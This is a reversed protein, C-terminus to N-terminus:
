LTVAGFSVNYPANTPISPGALSLAFGNNALANFSTSLVGAVEITSNAHLAVSNSMARTSVIEIGCVGCNSGNRFHQVTLTSGSVNDFLCYNGPTYTGA